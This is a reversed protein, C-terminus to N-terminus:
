RRRPTPAGRGRRPRRPRRECGPRVGAALTGVISRGVGLSCITEGGGLQRNSLQGILPVPLGRAREKSGVPPQTSSPLLLGGHDASVDMFIVWMDLLHTRESASLAGLGRPSRARSEHGLPQLPSGVKTLMNAHCCPGLDQLRQKRKALMLLASHAGRVPGYQHKKSQSLPLISPGARDHPRRNLM